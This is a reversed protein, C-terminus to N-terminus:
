KIFIKIINKIYKPFLNKLLVIYFFSKDGSKKILSIKIFLIISMYIKIFFNEKKLYNIKDALLTLNKYDKKIIKYKIIKDSGFYFNKYNNNSIDNSILKLINPLEHKRKTLYTICNKFGSVSFKLKYNIWSDYYWDSQGSFVNKSRSGYYIFKDKVQNDFIMTLNHMCHKKKLMQKGDFKKRPVLKNKNLKLEPPRHNSWKMGKVVRHVRPIDNFETPYGNIILDFTKYYDYFKFSVQDLTNFNSFIKKIYRHTEDSYFEDVDIQWLVNGTIFKIYENCMEKKNNFYRNKKILKIKKEPDPFNKIIQATKDKSAFNKSGHKFKKVAGEVILIQHAHKYLYSLQYKIFPEGNLVILAYTVKTTAM